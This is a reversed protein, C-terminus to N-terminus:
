EGSCSTRATQSPLVGVISVGACPAPGAPLTLEFPFAGAAAVISGGDTVVHVRDLPLLTGFRTADEDSPEWGFYHGIAGLARRLEDTDRITRVRYSM